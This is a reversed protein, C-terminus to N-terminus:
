GSESSQSGIKGGLGDGCALGWAGGVSEELRGSVVGAAWGCIRVWAYGGAIGATRRGLQWLGWRKRSSAKLLGLCWPSNAKARLPEPLAKSLRIRGSLGNKRM